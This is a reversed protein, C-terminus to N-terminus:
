FFLMRVCAPMGGLLYPLSRWSDVISTSTPPLPRLAALGTHLLPSGFLSALTGDGTWWKWARTWDFFFFFSSAWWRWSHPSWARSNPAAYHFSGEGITEHARAWHCSRCQRMPHRRDSNPCVAHFPQATVHLCVVCPLFFVLSAAVSSDFAWSRGTRKSWWRKGAM